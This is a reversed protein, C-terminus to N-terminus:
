IAVRIARKIKTRDTPPGFSGVSEVCYFRGECLPEIDLGPCDYGIASDWACDGVGEQCCYVEVEYSAQNSLTQSYSDSPDSGQNIVDHLVTEIGADAAYLAVVSDGMNSVMKFQKTLITSVGIVMTLLITVTGIALYVSIGKQNNQNKFMM